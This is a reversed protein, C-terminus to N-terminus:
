AKAAADPLGGSLRARDQAQFLANRQTPSDIEQARESAIAPQIEKIVTILKLYAARREKRQRDSIFEARERKANADRQRDRADERRIRWVEVVVNVLATIAVGLLVWAGSPLKTLFDTM